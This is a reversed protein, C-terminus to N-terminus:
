CNRQMSVKIIGTANASAPQVVTVDILDGAATTINHSATSDTCTTATNAVSCTMSQNSGNKQVTYVPVNANAASAQTVSLNSLICVGGFPIQALSQTSIATAGSAEKEAIYNTTSAAVTPAAGVWFDKVSASNGDYGFQTPSGLTGVTIFANGQTIINPTNTTSGVVIGKTMNDFQNHALLVMGSFVGGPDVVDAGQESQTTPEICTNNEVTLPESTGSLPRLQLCDNGAAGTPSNIWIYNGRVLGTKALIGTLLQSATMNMFCRNDVIQTGQSAVTDAIQICTHGNTTITNGAIQWQTPTFGSLASAAIIAASSNDGTTAARGTDVNIINNLWRINNTALTAGLSTPSTFCGTSNIGCYLHTFTLQSNDVQDNGSGEDFLFAQSYVWIRSRSVRVDDFLDWEMWGMALDSNDIQVDRALGGYWLEGRAPYTDTLNLIRLHDVDTASYILNNYDQVTFDRLTVNAVVDGGQLTTILQSQGPTGMPLPKVLAEDLYLNGTTSDVATIRRIQQPYYSGAVSAGGSISVEDGQNFNGANAATTTTVFAAGVSATNLPYTTAGGVIRNFTNQFHGSNFGFLNNGQFGQFSTAFITKDRGMGAVTTNSPVQLMGYAPFGKQTNGFTYIPTPPPNIVSPLDINYTHPGFLCTGGAAATICNQAAITDDHLVTVTGSGNPVSTNLTISNSTVGTIIAWYNQNVSGGPPSTPWGRSGGQQVTTNPVIDYYPSAAITALFTTAGGGVQRYIVYVTSQGNGTWSLQNANAPGITTAATSTTGTICAGSIGRWPDAACVTYTYSASNNAGQPTVTVSGGLATLPSAPGVPNALEVGQGVKFDSIGTCSTLTNSVSATCSGSATSGSAGYAEPHCIGDACVNNVADTGNAQNGTIGVSGTYGNLAPSIITNTVGGGGNGGYGQAPALHLSWALGTVLAVLVVTGLHKRM